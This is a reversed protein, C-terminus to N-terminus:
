HGPGVGIPPPALHVIRRFLAKYPEAAEVGLLPDTHGAFAEHIELWDAETLHQRTLPLLESEERRMHEWQMAAFENVQGAFVAFGPGSKERYRALAATVAHLKAAGSDHEDHLRNLLDSAALCRRRLLRFLYEDEKRHHFAGSFSTLYGVMADFLVFDPQQLGHRINRTLYLLGHLVAAISRHEDDIIHLAQLRPNASQAPSVAM